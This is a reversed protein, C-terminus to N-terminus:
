FAKRSTRRKGEGQDQEKIYYYQCGAKISHKDLFEKFNDESEATMKCLQQLTIRRKIAM